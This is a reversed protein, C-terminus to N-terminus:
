NVSIKFEKYSQGCYPCFKFKVSMIRENCSQCSSRLATGCIFCYKSRSEMWIAEPNTGPVWCNPCLKLGQISTVPVGRCVAELYDEPIELAGSLGKLTKANLRNTKGLELKGLSQIHIGAKTAMEGQSLKLSTRLRRVYQALTEGQIPQNESSINM